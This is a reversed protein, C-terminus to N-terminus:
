KKNSIYKAKEQNHEALTKTFIIRGDPTALFYLFDTKDPHLAAEISIIGANSIPGPPLGTNKYTNYPSSVELDQYYVKEKHRGEAYLVTPDTQLPMGKNIRNYFVSAIKGRDAKATAEEEILSAMTLLQHITQKKEKREQTFAALVKQTKDLMELVIDEISPNKKYFSYTAPYLYGELPYKINLNLIENTLLDPYKAMMTKILAKDNLQNFVEKEPKNVSKAIIQAIEKLQM